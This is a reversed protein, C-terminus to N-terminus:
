EDKKEEVRRSQRWEELVEFINISRGDYKERAYRLFEGSEGEASFIFVQEPFKPPEILSARLKDITERLLDVCLNMTELNSYDRCFVTLDDACDPCGLEKPNWRGCKDCEKMRDGFWHELGAAKGKESSIDLFPTLLATSSPYTHGEKCRDNGNARREREVGPRGCKPCFGYAEFLKIKDMKDRRSEYIIRNVSINTPWEGHLKVKTIVTDNPGIYTDLVTMNVGYMVQQQGVKALRKFPYRQKLLLKGNEDYIHETLM